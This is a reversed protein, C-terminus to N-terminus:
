ATVHARSVARTFITRVANEMMQAQDDLQVYWRAIAGVIQSPTSQFSHTQNYSARDVTGQAVVKFEWTHEMLFKKVQLEGMNKRSSFIIFAVLMGGEKSPVYKEHAARANPPPRLKFAMNSAGARFMKLVRVFYHFFPRPFSLLIGDFLTSSQYYWTFTDFRRSKLGYVFVRGNVYQLIM